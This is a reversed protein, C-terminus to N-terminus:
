CSTEGKLHRRFSPTGPRSVSTDRFDHSLDERIDHFDDEDEFKAIQNAHCCSLVISLLIIICLIGGVAAFATLIIQLFFFLISYVHITLKYQLTFSENSITRGQSRLYVLCRRLVQFSQLVQFYYNEFIGQAQQLACVLCFLTVLNEMFHFISVLLYKEWEKPRLSIM